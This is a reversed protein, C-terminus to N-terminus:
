AGKEAHLVTGKEIVIPKEPTGVLKVGPEVIVNKDLIVHQLYAGEGILCGQMIVSHDIHANEKVRVRRFLISNNIEGEIVCDTAIQVNGVKSAPSYYTPAGNKARTIVDQNRYFLSNFDDENLMDMSADYYDRISDIYKLYGTYEYAFIKEGKELGVSIMLGTHHRKGSAELTDMYNLFKEVAMIVIGTQIKVKETDPNIGDAISGSSKIEGIEADIMISDMDSDLSIESALINKYVVTVDALNEQHFRLVSRLNANCLMKSGMIVVYEAKSKKVYNRQDQYYTLYKGEKAATDKLDIQSHTFVGGGITSDLGWANGSRVHDYLSKGSGSIFLAASSVEADHLASFPFDILRYRGGFPLSAVPRSNTLPMLKSGDEVLNLIACFSDRMMM